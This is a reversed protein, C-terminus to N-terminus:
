GRSWQLQASCLFRCFFFIRPCVDFRQCVLTRSMLLLVAIESCFSVSALLGVHDVGVLFCNNQFWFILWAFLKGMCTM